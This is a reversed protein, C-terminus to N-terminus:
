DKSLTLLVLVKGDKIELPYEGKRLYKYRTDLDLYLLVDFNFEYDDEQIFTLKEHVTIQSYEKGFFKIQDDKSLATTNLELLLSTDSTKVAKFNKMNTDPNRNLPDSVASCFGSGGGCQKGRLDGQITKENDQSFAVM